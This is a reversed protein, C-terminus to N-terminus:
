QKTPDHPRQEQWRLMAQFEPDRKAAENVAAIPDGDDGPLEGAAESLGLRKWVRGFQRRQSASYADFGARIDEIEAKLAAPTREKANEYLERLARLDNTLGQVRSLAAFATGVALLTLLILLYDM